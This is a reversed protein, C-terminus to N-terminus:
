YACVSFVAYQEPKHLIDEKTEDDLVTACYGCGYGSSRFIGMDGYPTFMNDALRAALSLKHSLQKDLEFTDDAMHQQVEAMAKQLNDMIRQNWARCKDLIVEREALGLTRLDLSFREDPYQSELESRLSACVDAMLDDIDSEYDSANIDLAELSVLMEM